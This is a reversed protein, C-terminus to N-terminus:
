VPTPKVTSNPFFHFVGEEIVGGRAVVIELALVDEPRRPHLELSPELRNFHTM